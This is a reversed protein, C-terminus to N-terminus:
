VLLFYHYPLAQWLFSKLMLYALYAGYDNVCDNLVGGDNLADGDYLADANLLNDYLAYGHLADGAHVGGNLSNGDLAGGHLADGDDDGHGHLTIGNPVDDNVACENLM